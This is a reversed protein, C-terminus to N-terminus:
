YIMTRRLLFVKLVLVWGDSHSVFAKSSPLDFCSRWSLLTVLLTLAISLRYKPHEPYSEPGTQLMGRFIRWREVGNECPFLDCPRPMQAAYRWVPRGFVQYISKLQNSFRVHMPNHMSFCPRELQFPRLHVPYQTIISQTNFNPSIAINRIEEVEFPHAALALYLSSIVKM